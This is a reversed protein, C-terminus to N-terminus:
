RTPERGEVTSPVLNALIADLMAAGDPREAVALPAIGCAEAVAESLCVTRLNAQSAGDLEAMLLSASRPSYLPALVPGSAILARAPPSLPVARQAYIVVAEAEIGRARLAGVLDGRAVAGRLHVLPPADLPVLEALTAADPAVGRVDLGIERARAATRPGVAWVPLGPRGGAAAYVAVANASTLLLGGVIKPVSGVPEIRLLPSVDVREAGGARLLAALREADVRPRTLLVPLPRM